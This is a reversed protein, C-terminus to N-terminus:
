QMWRRGVLYVASIGLIAGAVDIGIDGISAGRGSVFLQHSEDITAYIAAGILAYFTSKLWPLKVVSRLLVTLLSGLVFFLSFHAFKRIYHHWQALNISDFGLSQVYPFSLTTLKMSLHASEKSTQSSFKFIVVIVCVTLAIIMLRLLTSKQKM